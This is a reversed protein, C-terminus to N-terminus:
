APQHSQQGTWIEYEVELDPSPKQYLLPEDSGKLTKSFFALTYAEIISQARRADIPGSESFRRFPSYIGRDTFNMHSARRIKLRYGGFRSLTQDVNKRDWLNMESRGRLNRDASNLDANTPLVEDDDMQMFPKDIGGRAVDGFLWGDMNLAARIRPDRVSAELAVAGGFSHGFAGVRNLNLKGFFRSQRDQNLRNLADLVFIDDDAQYETEREAWAIVQEVSDKTFDGLSLTRDPQIIEGGSFAVPGTTYPHDIAVVVFGHSALDETQFTNQTRQGQWGPNFLLVPFPSGQASVEADLHSHTKLVAMYSALKTTEPWRRYPALRGRSDAAPYWVQVLIRRSKGPPNAHIETRGADELQIITTGVAYPGSPRPLRFMPLVYSLAVSGLILTLSLVSLSRRTLLSFGSGGFLNVSVLVVALYLPALQWHPGEVFVHILLSAVALACCLRLIHFVRPGTWLWSLSPSVLLALTLIEFPRM